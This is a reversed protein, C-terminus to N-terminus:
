QLAPTFLFMSLFDTLWSAMCCEQRMNDENCMIRCSSPVPFHYRRRNISLSLSPCLSLSLPPFSLHFVPFFSILIDKNEKKDMYDTLSLSHLYIPKGGNKPVSSVGQSQLDGKHFDPRAGSFKSQSIACVFPVAARSYSLRLPIFFFSLVLPSAESEEVIGSNLIIIRVQTPKGM